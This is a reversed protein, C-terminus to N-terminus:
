RSELRVVMAVSAVIIAAGAVTISTVVEDLVLWGLVIAVVPNIARGIDHAIWIEEVRTEGTEPDVAVEAVAAAYSYAPSPGVGAGKYRGPSPPPTYSGVTGITGFKAEAIVLRHKKFYIRLVAAAQKATKFSRHYSNLKGLLQGLGLHLKLAEEFTFYAEVVDPDPNTEAKTPKFRAVTLSGFTSKKKHIDDSM